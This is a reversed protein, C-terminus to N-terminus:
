GDPWDGDSPRTAVLGTEDFLRITAKGIRPYDREILADALWKAEDLSGADIPHKARAADRYSTVNPDHISLLYYTM